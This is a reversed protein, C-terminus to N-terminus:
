SGKGIMAKVIRVSVSGAAIMFDASCVIPADVSRGTNLAIGMSMRAALGQGHPARTRRQERAKRQKSQQQRMPM